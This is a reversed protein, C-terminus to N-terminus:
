RLSPSRSCNSRRSSRRAPSTPMREGRLPLCCLLRLLDIQALGAADDVGAHAGELAGIGAVRTLGEGEALHEDDALPAVVGEADDGPALAAGVVGGPGEDGAAVGSLAGGRDHRAVGLDLQEQASGEGDGDASVDVALDGPGGERGHGRGEEGLHLGGGVLLLDADGVLAAEEDGEEGVGGGVIGNDGGRMRSTAWAAPGPSRGKRTAAPLSSARRRLASGERRVLIRRITSGHAVRVGVGGLGEADDDSAGERLAELHPEIRALGGLEALVRLGINAAAEADEAHDRVDGELGDVGAGGDPGGALVFGREQALDELVSADVGGEGDVGVEFETVVAFFRGAGAAEGAVKGGDMGGVLVGEIAGEGGVAGADGDAGGEAHVLEFNADVELAEELTGGAHEALAAGALADEDEVQEVGHESARRGGRGVAVAGNGEDEVHVVVVAPLHLELAGRGAAQAGELLAVLGVDLEVGEFGASGAGVALDQDAGAIDLGVVKFDQALGEIEVSRATSAAWAQRRRKPAPQISSIRASSGERATTSM